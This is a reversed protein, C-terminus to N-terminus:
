PCSRYSTQTDWYKSNNRYNKRLSNFEKQVLKNHLFGNLSFAADLNYAHQKLSPKITYNQM